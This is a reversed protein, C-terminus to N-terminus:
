AHPNGSAGDLWPGGAETLGSSRVRVAREIQVRASPLLGAPLADVAIFAAGKTEITRTLPEGECRGMLVVSQRMKFGSEVALLHEVTCALGTEERVERQLGQEVTERPNVWGAPLGWPYTRRFVHEVLLVRGDADFLVGSVGVNYKPQTLWIARWVLRAPLRKYVGSLLERIV